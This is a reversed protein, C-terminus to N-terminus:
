HAAYWNAFYINTKELQSTLWWSLKKSELPGYLYIFLIKNELKIKKSEHLQPCM